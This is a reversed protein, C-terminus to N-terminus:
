KWLKVLGDRGTTILLPDHNSLEIMNMDLICDQHSVMQSDRYQYDLRNGSADAAGSAVTGCGQNMTQGNFHQWESVGHYGLILEQDSQCSTERIHGLGGAGGKNNQIVSSM